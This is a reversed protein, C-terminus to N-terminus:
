LNKTNLTFSKKAAKQNDKPCTSIKKPTHIKLIHFIYNQGAITHIQTHTYLQPSFDRHSISSQQYYIRIKM